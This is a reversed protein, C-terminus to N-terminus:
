VRIIRDIEFPDTGGETKTERSCNFVRYGPTLYGTFRATEECLGAHNEHDYVSPLKKVQCRSLM